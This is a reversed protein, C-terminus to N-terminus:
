DASAPQEDVRQSLVTPLQYCAMEEHNRLFLLGAALAPTNWSKGGFVSMRALERFGQSSAAVLVVDGQEGTVLLVDSVLLLQGSGYRGKKWHRQGTEADLCVLIGNSLGFISEGDTVPNSFKAYLYRNSWIVRAIWEDAERKVGIMACGRTDSSIFVRDGPLVLPQVINCDNLTEWPHRWLESGSGVDFGALGGADFILIQESGGLNARLPSSYGARCKGSRWKRQGTDVDYAVLTGGSRSAPNAGACVVVSQGIVLPSGSMGWTVNESGNDHLINLSWQLLGGRGDLCTLEGTAGLTYV